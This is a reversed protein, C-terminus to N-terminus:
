AARRLRWTEGDDTWALGMRHLAALVAAIKAEIGRAKRFRAALTAADLGAPTDMLAAMVVATQEADATPYAPKSAAAEPAVLTAEIQEAKEKASGFKPIQYEPRLWRVLGRAEERAREKNLAVLRALIEEDPLDAPWGYAEAVAVDLRDHLEKLILVLGDDFIRREAAELDAPAVGARLRELVNYLGTLTLHPHLGLVRKRHADLEEAIGRIKQKRLDDTAPFPFPDFCKKNSYVPDDGVGMRVGSSNSWTVHIKSSLVGLIFPDDIGFVVVRDDCIHNGNIYQFIRHRSVDATVIYRSLGAISLRMAPQNEGFLWWNNRRVDRRNHDREPKVLELVQQFLAPNRGRAETETLGFFDIVYLNRSKQNLDRGNLYPRLIDNLDEAIIKEALRNSVIFGKGHLKVGDKCVGSNSMLKSVDGVDVGVSINTNIYGDRTIFDINPADTDLASESRVLLLKGNSRGRECVTMAIRVAAAGASAKHWPHNPIAFVISIPKSGNLHAGVVKSLSENTISNTTVFGFRKLDPREVLLRAANSWWYMVVDCAGSISPYAGWLGESYGDGFERRFNQGAVFPPNGVIYEATPWEPRRPNPYTEEGDVIKPLPYGDWTLVADMQRINKFARLIPESPAAGKTRFHWQLYGIWLVLEAIAAARPNLELGLFQHPDVTDKELGLGEQGGLSAIAELVEGELRKLLELSVYLFNGTGCAPDLVRTRCLKDHFARLTAVAEKERGEARQRETTGLTQNWEERLPEIITAVVLREVYARPTYHAGLRKRDTPDLAQELLTGFIAPEVERWDAEAARRLEGIEERDLPLVSRRKFFEGNFQKVKTEIAHAFGGTDMAEWMQGVLHPFKSPDAECKKLVDRFSDKPLLEVDEAFMTFLCRMLFMAVEETPWGHKESARSVAALREAIERTVKASRKSPDLAHPDSWIAKLRERIEIKRLDELYIRFGQRDPFQAYNKGQGTFDAFVEIVHGVDCVLVFPPWGHATPLCRAYNVAQNKADFMLNDWSRDAGRRGRAPLAGFLDPTPEMAKPSGPKLRSQKAELVFSGRKYLDIRRHNFTGDGNPEKVAREFVYDNLESTAGAPDPRPVGLVDCLESLFLAYNAREQGGEGGSWRAIFGEVDAMIGRM